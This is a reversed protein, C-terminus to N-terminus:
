NNTAGAEIWARLLAIEEEPLPDGAQALGTCRQDPTTANRSSSGTANWHMQDSPNESEDTRVM